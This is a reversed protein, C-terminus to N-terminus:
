GKDNRKEGEKGTGGERYPLVKIAKTPEALM